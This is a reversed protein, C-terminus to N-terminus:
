FNNSNLDKYRFPYKSSMEPQCFSPIKKFPGLFGRGILFKWTPSHHEEGLPTQTLSSFIQGIRGIETIEDSM